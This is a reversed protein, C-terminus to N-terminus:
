QFSFPLFKENFYFMVMCLLEKLDLVETWTLRLVGFPEAGEERSGATGTDGESRHIQESRQSM